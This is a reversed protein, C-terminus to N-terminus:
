SLGLRHLGREVRAWFGSREPGPLATMATAVIDPPVDALLTYVFGSSEWVGRYQGSEDRYITDHESRIGDWGTRTGTHNGRGDAYEAGPGGLRGRQAFVSVQSLGDSYVLHVVRDQGYFTSWADLLRLNWSLHEPLFWGDARLADLDAGDLPEGWPAGHVSEEPWEGPGLRIETFRSSHVAREARDYITRALLLGTEEEVWFRGAVTGDARRAEVLSTHWGGVSAEGAETVRYIDELVTLLREDLSELSPSSSVVLSAATGDPDGASAFATGEGPRHVVSVAHASREGDRAGPGTVTKVGSYALEQGAQAARRLTQMGDDEGAAPTAVAYPPTAGTLLLACLLLALLHGVPSGSRSSPAEGSM